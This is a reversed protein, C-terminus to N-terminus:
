VTRIYVLKKAEKGSDTTGTILIKGAYKDGVILRIGITKDNDDRIEEHTVRIKSEVKYVFSGTERTSFYFDNEGNKGTNWEIYDSGEIFLEATQTTHSKSVVVTFTEVVTNNRDLAATVTTTGIGRGILKNGNVEVISNDSSTLTYTEDVKKGDRLVRVPLDMVDGAFLKVEEGLDNKIIYEYEDSYAIDNILDDTDLTKDDALSLISVNDISV